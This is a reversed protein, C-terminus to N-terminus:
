KNEKELKPAKGVYRYNKQLEEWSIWECPLPYFKVQPEHPAEPSYRSIVVEYTWHKSNEEWLGGVSPLSLGHPTGPVGNHEHPMIRRFKRKSM